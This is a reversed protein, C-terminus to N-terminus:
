FTAPFRINWDIRRRMFSAICKIVKFSAILPMICAQGYRHRFTKGEKPRSNRRIHGSPGPFTFVKSNRPIHKSARCSNGSQM